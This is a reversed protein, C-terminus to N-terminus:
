GDEELSQELDTHTSKQADHLVHKTYQSLM